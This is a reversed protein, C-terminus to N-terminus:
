EDPLAPVERVHGGGPGALLEEMTIKLVKALKEATSRYAMRKGREILSVDKQYLGAARALQGQLIGQKERWALLHPLPLVDDPRPARPTVEKAARLTELEVALVEKEECLQRALDHWGDRQKKLHEIMTLLKTREQDRALLAFENANM